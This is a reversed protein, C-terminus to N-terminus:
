HATEKFPLSCERFEFDKECGIAKRIPESFLEKRRQDGETHADFIYEKEIASEEPFHSSLSPKVCQWSSSALFKNQRDWQFPLESLLEAMAYSGIVDAFREDPSSSYGETEMLSRNSFEGEIRLTERLVDISM